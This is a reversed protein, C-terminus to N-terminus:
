GADFTHMAGITAFQEIVKSGTISEARLFSKPPADNNEVKMKGDRFM